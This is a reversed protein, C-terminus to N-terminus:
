AEMLLRVDCRECAQVNIRIILNVFADNQFIQQLPRAASDIFSMMCLCMPQFRLFWLALQYCLCCCCM